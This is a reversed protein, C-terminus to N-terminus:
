AAVPNNNTIWHLADSPDIRRQKIEDLMARLRALENSAAIGYRLPNAAAVKVCTACARPHLANFHHGTLPAALVGCLTERRRGEPRVSTRLAHVKGYGAVMGTITREYGTGTWTEGPAQAPLPRVTRLHEFGHRHEYARQRCAHNCYLRPRGPRRVVVFEDACWSCARHTPRPYTILPMFGNYVSPTVGFESKPESALPAECRRREGADEPHTVAVADRAFRGHRLGPVVRRL